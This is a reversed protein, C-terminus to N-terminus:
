GLGSYELPWDGFHAWEGGQHGTQGSRCTPRGRVGQGRSWGVTMNIRNRTCKGIAREDKNRSGRPKRSGMKTRYNRIM